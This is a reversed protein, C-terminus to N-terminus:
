RWLKELKEMFEFQRNFLTNVQNQFFRKQNAKCTSQYEKLLRCM